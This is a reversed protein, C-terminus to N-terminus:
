CRLLSLATEVEEVSAVGGLGKLNQISANHEEQTVTATADSVTTAMVSHVIADRVTTEVCVNTGVGVVVLHNVGDKRINELLNTEFFASHSHKEIIQEGHIPTLEPIIEWDWTNRVLTKMSQMFPYLELLIGADSHDGAYGQRVHYVPLRKDRFAERLRNIPQFVAYMLETEMGLKGFTGNKDCFCNQMDSILLAPRSKLTLM